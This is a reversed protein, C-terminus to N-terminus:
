KSPDDIRGDTISTSHPSTPISFQAFTDTDYDIYTTYDIYPISGFHFAM